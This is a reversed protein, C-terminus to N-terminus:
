DRFGLHLVFVFQYIDLNCCKVFHGAM